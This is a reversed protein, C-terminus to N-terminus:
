KQRRDVGFVFRRIEDRPYDRKNTNRRFYGPHQEQNNRQGVATQKNKEVAVTWWQNKQRYVADVLLVQYYTNEILVRGTGKLHEYIINLVNGIRLKLRNEAVVRTIMDNWGINM